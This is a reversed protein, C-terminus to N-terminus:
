FCSGVSSDILNYSLSDQSDFGTGDPLIAGTQRQGCVGASSPELYYAKQTSASGANLTGTLLLAVGVRAPSGQAQGDGCVLGVLIKGKVSGAFGLSSSGVSIAAEGALYPVGRAFGGSSCGRARPVQGFGASVTVTLTPAMRAVNTNFGPICNLRFEYTMTGEYYIMGAQWDLGAWLSGAAARLRGHMDWCLSLVADARVRM